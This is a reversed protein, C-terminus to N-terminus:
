STGGILDALKTTMPATKFGLLNFASTYYFVRDNAPDADQLTSYDDVAVDGGDGKTLLDFVNQGSRSLINGNDQTGGLIRDLFSDYAVDHIETVALDGNISFWDGTGAPNTRRYM